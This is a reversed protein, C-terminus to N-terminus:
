RELNVLVDTCNRKRQEDSYPPRTTLRTDEVPGGVTFHYLSQYKWDNFGFLDHVPDDFYCGIGTARIGLAEAELYLVQGIMGCEWFLRRYQWPGITYLSHQFEAVMGLSFASDGAIDQGCSVEAAIRQCNGEVLFYLPLDAPCGPPKEWLFDKRMEERLSDLGSTNRVLIYLGPLLERVRHVFLCLHVAPPWITSDFPISPTKTARDLPMTRGLVHYFDKASIETMGDFAVASRRQLIIGHATLESGNSIEDTVSKTIPLIEIISQSSTRPKLCAEAVEDIISWPHHDRSLRNAKGFWNGEAIKDICASPLNLPITSQDATPIIAALLDPHEREADIFDEDRSLGTIKAIDNDGLGELVVLRWGLVAASIRLAALAHGIDHQCYRFAREGYKWAERWHISSLGVFFSGAPFDRTLENWIDDDFTSRVELGHERPAYHCVMAPRSENAGIILYGETPHLNGSSPNVRLAWRSDHFEKWASIALSREFLQGITEISVNAPSVRGEFLKLYAPTKDTETFPLLLTQAGTYRRFPDPQTAWDLYGLSRAFRNFNHKTETHYHFVKPIKDDTSTASEETSETASQNFLTKLDDSM